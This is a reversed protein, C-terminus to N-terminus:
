ATKHDETSMYVPVGLKTNKQLPEWYGPLLEKLQDQPHIMIRDLIDKMYLWPNINMNRCSVFLSMFVAATRGGRQSGAFLWNKRGIGLSRIGREVHNNDILLRGDELYRRLPQEQNLCYTVADALPSKPLTGLKLTMFKEFLTDVVPRSKVQRIAYREDTTMNAAEKEVDYLVGILKLLKPADLPHCLVADKFRRTAHAWCGVEIIGDKKMVEDHGGYADAQAYGQFDGLLATAEEKEKTLTFRFFVHPPGTGARCIWMRASHLKGSGKVQLKIGSDDFGVYDNSLVDRTLAEYLGKLVDDGLKLMWNNMHNRHLGINDRKSSEAQRYYPQHDVFRKVAIDALYGNDAKCKAIPFVPLEAIVLGSGNPLAYVPREYVNVRLRTPIIDLKETKEIRIVRLEEGTIPDIKEDDAIDVRIIHRELHGPLLCRGRRKKKRKHGSPAAPDPLFDQAAEDLAAESEKLVDLLLAEFVQQDPHINEGKKGSLRLLLADLQVRQQEIMRRLSLTNQQAAALQERLQENEKKVVDLASNLPDLALHM